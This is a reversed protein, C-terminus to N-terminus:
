GIRHFLCKGGSGAFVALCLGLDIESPPLIHCTHPEPVRVEDRQQAPRLKATDNDNNNINNTHNDGNNTNANNKNSNIIIM